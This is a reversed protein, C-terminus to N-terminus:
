ENKPPTTIIKAITEMSMSADIDYVGIQINKTLKQAKLQDNFVKADEIIHANELQTAVDKSTTGLEIQLTLRAPQEEKPTDDVENKDEVAVKKENDKKEDRIEEKEKAESTITQLHALEKETEDLKTELFAVQEQLGESVQQEETKEIFTPYFYLFSGSLVFSIGLIRVIEKLM